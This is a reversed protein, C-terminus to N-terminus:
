DFGIIPSGSVAFAERALREVGVVALSRPLVVLAANQAACSVCKAPTVSPAPTLLGGSKGGTRDRPRGPPNSVGRQQHRLGGDFRHTIQAGNALANDSAYEDCIVCPVCQV